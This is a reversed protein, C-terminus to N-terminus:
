YLCDVTASFLYVWARVTERVLFFREQAPQLLRDEFREREDPADATGFSASVFSLADQGRFAGKSSTLPSMKKPFERSESSSAAVYTCSPQTNVRGGVFGFQPLLDGLGIAVRKILETHVEVRSM